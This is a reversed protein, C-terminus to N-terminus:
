PIGPGAPSLRFAFSGGIGRPALRRGLADRVPDEALLSPLVTRRRSRFPALSVPIHVTEYSYADTSMLYGNKDYQKKTKVNGNADYETREDSYLLSLTDKGYASIERILRGAGDYAFTKAYLTDGNAKLSLRSTVRADSGYGYTATEKLAGDTSLTQTQVRGQEDYAYDYESTLSSGASDLPGVSITWKLLKGSADYQYGYDYLLSDDYRLVAHIPRGAGDYESRTSLRYATGNPLLAFLTDVIDRGAADYTKKQTSLVSDHRRDTETEYWLGQNDLAYSFDQHRLTDGGSGLHDIRVLLLSDSSFARALMPLALITILWSVANLSGRM